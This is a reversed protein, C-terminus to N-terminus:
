TSCASIWSVQQRQECDFESAGEEDGMTSTYTKFLTKYIFHM